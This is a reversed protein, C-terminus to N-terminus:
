EVSYQHNGDKDYFHKGRMEGHYNGSSDYLSNGRFEGIYNGHYDYFKGDRVSGVRNGYTDRLTEGDIYGGLNGNTDRFRSTPSSSDRSQSSSTFSSSSSGSESMDTYDPGGGPGYVVDRRIREKEAPTLTTMYFEAVGRIAVKCSACLNILTKIRENDPYVKKLAKLRSEVSATTNSYWGLQEDIRRRREDHSISTDNM